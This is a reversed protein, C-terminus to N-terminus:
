LDPYMRGPNFVGPPDFVAKLRRHLAMLAPSLPQFVAGSIRPGRFLTAHGGAKGVADRISGANAGTRVWRLAGGWEVICEGGIASLAAAPVTAPVSIRWLPGESQFFPEHQDRLRRWFAAADSGPVPDGGVQVRAAAVTSAAGSLRLRLQGSFWASASVPLGAAVWGTLAELAHQLPMELALTAEEAPRPLTKLSVELILAMTGLSGAMLRSVDYGAVNKMVQGGFRLVRGQADMITAGLVFDRLAGASSRRPGSLGAAVAGGLTAEGGADFHPPECALMQGSAALVSELEALPTGCRATVVLETPDYAVIGRYGRTDLISGELRQGYFDKTGGGRFRLPRRSASADRVAAGLQELAASVSSDSNM